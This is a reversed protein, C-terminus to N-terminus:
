RDRRTAGQGARSVVYALVAVALLSGVPSARVMMPVMTALAASTGAAAASRAHLARLRRQRRARVQLALLAILAALITVGAISLAAVMAGYEAAIALGLAYLLAVYATVVLLAVIAYVALSIAFEHTSYRIRGTLSSVLESM